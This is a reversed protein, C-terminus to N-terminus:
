SCAKAFVVARSIPFSM